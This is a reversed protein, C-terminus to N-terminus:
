SSPMAGKEPLAGRRRFLVAAKTDIREMDNARAYDLLVRDVKEPGVNDEQMRWMFGRPDYEPKLSIVLDPRRDPFTSLYAALRDENFRVRWTTPAGCRMSSAMYAWPALRTIILNGEGSAYERIIDYVTQYQGAVKHSVFLGAAPGQRIEVATKEFPIKSTIYRVCPYGLVGIALTLALAAAARASLNLKHHKALVFGAACDWLLSISAVASVSLGTAIARFGTNSAYHMTLSYVLGPLFVGYFMPKDPKETMFFAQTALLALSYLAVTKESHKLYLQACCVLAGALLLLCSELSGFKRRTLRKIFTYVILAVSPLLTIGYFHFVKSLYSRVFYSLNKPNHEPDHFIFSLGTQILKINGGHLAYAIYPLAVAGIGLASFGIFLRWRPTVRKWLLLAALLATFYAACLYPYSGAAVAFAAGVAFPLLRRGRGRAYRYLGTTTLVLFLTALTNYSFNGPVTKAYLLNVLAGLIAPWFGKYPYLSRFVAFAVGTSFLVYLIRMFQISGDSSGAVWHYLTYVPLLFVTFWQTPHWEHVILQDGRFLRDTMALYNSEDTWGFGFFSCSLMLVGSLLIVAYGLLIARKGLTTSVANGSM